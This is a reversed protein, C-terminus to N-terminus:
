TQKERKREKRCHQAGNASIATIISVLGGEAMGLCVRCM